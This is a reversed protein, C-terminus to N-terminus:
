DKKVMMGQELFIEELLQMSFKIYDVRADAPMTEPEDLMLFLMDGSRGNDVKRLAVCM